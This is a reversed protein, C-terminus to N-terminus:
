QEKLKLRKQKLIILTSIRHEYTIFMIICIENTIYSCHKVATANETDETNLGFQHFFYQIM